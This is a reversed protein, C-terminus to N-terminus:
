AYEVHIIAHIPIFIGSKLSISDESVNWITTHVEKIGEETMFLIRVKGKFENGLRCAEALADIRVRIESNSNLVEGKPFHMQAIAEKEIIPYHTNSSFNM